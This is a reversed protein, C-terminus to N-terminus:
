RGDVMRIGLIDHFTIKENTKSGYYARDADIYSRDDGTLENWVRLEDGSLDDTIPYKRAYGDIVDRDVEGDVTCSSSSSALMRMEDLDM